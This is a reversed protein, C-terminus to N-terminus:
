AVDGNRSHGALVDTMTTDRISAVRGQWASLWANVKPPGAVVLQRANGDADRLFSRVTGGAETVLLAGAAWDWVHLAMEFYATYRGCAVWALDLAAAGGRRIDRVQPLLGALDHGQEVRLNGEYSFGTAILCDQIPRDPACSIPAGNLTAGGDRVATFLENMTPHFVAAAVPGHDDVCAISVCWLGIGHLFNVTGDLPDIVWRYGSTGDREGHGEETIIGDHPFAAALAETIHQESARDANSVPDTLSTKTAVNLDAGDTHASAYTTLLQGASAAVAAARDRRMAHEVNVLVEGGPDTRFVSQWAL